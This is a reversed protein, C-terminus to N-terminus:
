PAINGGGWPSHQNAQGNVIWWNQLRNDTGCGFVALVGNYVVATPNGALSGGGWPSHQNAQGNVIWWNQLVGDTGRGFVTLVNGFVAATPGGALSGGGWVDHHAQTDFWWHQLTGDTGRYFVNLVDQYVIAVPRGGVSNPGTWVDHHNAQGDVLWWHQLSGDAGRAFVTLEGNFEVVSSASFDVGSVPVAPPPDAAINHYRLPKYGRNILTSRSYRSAIAGPNPGSEDTYSTEEYVNAVSHSSDTWSVFLVVHSGPDDIADGPKLDDISNLWIGYSPLSVTTPSAMGTPTLGGPWRCSGSCDMRYDGYQNAYHNYQTYKVNVDV